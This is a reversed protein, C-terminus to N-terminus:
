KKFTFGSDKDSEKFAKKTSDNYKKIESFMYDIDKNAVHHKKSLELLADYQKMLRNVIKVAEEFFAEDTKIKATDSKPKNLDSATNLEEETKNFNDM